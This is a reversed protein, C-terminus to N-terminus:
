EEKNILKNRKSAKLEERQSNKTHKPITYNNKKSIKQYIREIIYIIKADSDDHKPEPLNFPLNFKSNKIIM